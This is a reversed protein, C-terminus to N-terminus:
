CFATERTILPVVQQMEKIDHVVGCEGPTSSYHTYSRRECSLDVHCNVIVVMVGARCLWLNNASQNSMVRSSDDGWHTGALVGVTCQPGCAPLGHNARDVGWLAFHCAIVSCQFTVVSLYTKRCVYFRLPSSWVLCCVVLHQLLRRFGHRGVLQFLLSDLYRLLLGHLRRWRGLLHRILTCRDLLQVCSCGLACSLVRSFVSVFTFM